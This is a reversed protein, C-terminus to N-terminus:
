GLTGVPGAAFRISASGPWGTGSTGMALNVRLTLVAGIGPRVWIAARLPNREARRAAVDAPWHPLAPLAADGGDEATLDPQGLVGCAAALYDPWAAVGATIVEPNEAARSARRQWSVQSAGSIGGTVQDRFLDLTGGSGTTVALNLDGDTHTLRWGRDAAWVAPRATSEGKWVARWDIAVLQALDGAFQDPTRKVSDETVFGRGKATIRKIGHPLRSAHIFWGGLRHDDVTVRPLTVCWARAVASIMASNRASPVGRPVIQASSIVNKAPV